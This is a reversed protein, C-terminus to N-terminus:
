CHTMGVFSAVWYVMVTSQWMVIDMTSMFKHIEGRYIWAFESM